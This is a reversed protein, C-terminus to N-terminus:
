WARAGRRARVATKTLLRLRRAEDGRGRHAVDGFATLVILEVDPQETRLTRVVGWETSAEAHQLDTICSTSRNKARQLRLAMPATRPRCSKMHGDRELSEALFSRVGEEDDVVLM